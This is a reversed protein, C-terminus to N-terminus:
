QTPISGPFGRGIRDSLGKTSTAINSVNDLYERASNIFQDIQAAAVGFDLIERRQELRDIEGIFRTRTQEADRRIKAIEEANGEFSKALRRVEPNRNAGARSALDRVTNEEANLTKVYAGEPSLRSATDRLVGLLEDVLKRANATNAVNADLNEQLEDLRKLRRAAEEALKLADAGLGKAIEGVDSSGGPPASPSIPPLPVTQASGEISPLIMGLSAIAIQLLVRM